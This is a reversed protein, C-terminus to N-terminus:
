DTGGLGDLVTEKAEPKSDGHRVFLMTFFAGLVFVTAYPFLTRWSVHDLLLGSLVPTVVQAAMSATYYFGTYRGVDGGRALEVVMPYSNVNITAWGIGALAFLTPMLISKVLLPSEADLFSAFLFAYLTVSIPRSGKEIGIKTLINYAAFAVGSLLGLLLGLTNVKFDGIVGSVFVCGGLMLGLSIAKLPTLKEGLFLVSFLMVLAPSTYMLVVATSISTIQLSYFYCNGTGFLAVGIFLCLLLEWWRVRFLSRDFLIAFLAVAVFSVGGRVASIQLTTFGYPALLQVFLGSTGWLVGALIVFAFSLKKM